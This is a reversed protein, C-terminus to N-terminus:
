FSICFNNTFVIDLMAEYLSNLDDIPHIRYDVDINPSRYKEMFLDYVRVKHNNKILIDILHSGLFGNGGILLFNM